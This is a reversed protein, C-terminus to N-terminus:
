VGTRAVRESPYISFLDSALRSKELYWSIAMKRPLSKLRSKAVKWSYPKERRIDNEVPHHDSVCFHGSALAYRLFPFVRSALAMLFDRSLVLRFSTSHSSTNRIYFTSVWQSLRVSKQFVIVATFHALYILWLVLNYRNYNRPLSLSRSM